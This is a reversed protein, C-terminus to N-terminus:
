QMINESHDVLSPESYNQYVLFWCLLTFAFALFIVLKGSFYVSKLDFGKGIDWFLHRVGNFLHYFLSFTWIFLAVKAIALYLYCQAIKVAMSQLCDPYYVIAFILWSISIIGLFLFVGSIRHLISLFSTLQPKYISLHPSLPRKNM